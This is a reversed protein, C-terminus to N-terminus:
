EYLKPWTRNGIYFRCYTVVSNLRSASNIWIPLYRLFLLDTWHNWTTSGDPEQTITGFNERGIMNSSKKVYFIELITQDKSKWKNLGLTWYQSQLCAQKKQFKASYNLATFIFVSPHNNSFNNSFFNNLFIESNELVVIM